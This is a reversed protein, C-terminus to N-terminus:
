QAPGVPRAAPHQQWFGRVGALTTGDAPIAPSMFYSQPESGKFFPMSAFADGNLTYYDNGKTVGYDLRLRYIGPPLDAPLQGSAHLLVSNGGPM